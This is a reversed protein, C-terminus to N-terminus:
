QILFALLQYQYQYHFNTLQLPLFHFKYDSFECGANEEETLTMYQKLQAATTIRNQLQWVWNNWDNKPVHAWLGQGYYWNCLKDKPYM